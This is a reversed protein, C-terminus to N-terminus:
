FLIKGTENKKIMKHQLHYNHLFKERNRIFDDIEDAFNLTTIKKASSIKLLDNDIMLNITEIFISKNFSEFRFHRNELINFANKQIAKVLEKKAAEKNKNFYKRLCFATLLQGELFELILSSLNALEFKSFQTLFNFEEPFSAYDGDTLYPFERRLCTRLLQYDSELNENEAIIAAAAIAPKIVTQLFGNKYYSLKVRKDSEVQIRDGDKKIINNFGKLSRRFRRLLQNQNKITKALILNRAAAIKHFSQYISFIDYSNFTNSSSSLLAAGTLMSSTITTNQVINHTIKLSLQHIKEKFESSAPDINGLYNKMDFPQAVRIHVRGYRNLLVSASKLVQFFDESKKEKGFNEIQYSDEEIVKEYGITIPVIQPSPLPRQLLLKGIMSLLGFKPYVAKGTRSRTGEIFFEINVGLKLLETIYELLVQKYLKKGKFSRRIFFAGGMRFIAGMPFFSLNQGAAIHPIPLHYKDMLWSILLYDVHSRHCPILILPGRTSYERMKEFGKDDLEFGKFIRHWIFTLAYKYFALTTKTPAAPIERIASQIEKLAKEPDTGEDITQFYLKTINENKNLNHQIKGLSPLKPGLTLKWEKEIAEVLLDYLHDAKDAFNQNTNGLIFSSINLPPAIRIMPQFLSSFVQLVGRINTPKEQQGIYKDVFEKFANSNRTGSRDWVPIVPLAVIEKQPANKNLSSILNLLVEDGTKKQEPEFINKITYLSILAPKGALLDDSILKLQHEKDFKFLHKGLFAGMKKLPNLFFPNEPFIHDPLPLKENVLIQRFLSYDVLNKTGFVYLVTFNDNIEKLKKLDKDKLDVREYLPSLITKQIERNSKAFNKLFSNLLKEM